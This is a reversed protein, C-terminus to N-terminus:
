GRVKISLRKRPFETPSLTSLLNAVNQRFEVAINAIDELEKKDFSEHPFILKLLGSLLKKVAKEDRITYSGELGFHQEILAEFSIDRMKHLIESLYDLALGYGHALHDESKQIKLLEWGPILGHIRDLMATDRLFDPLYSIIDDSVKYGELDVNGIFVISCTSHARKLHAREFFGDVMYDKLKAIVEDSNAFKIRSIEDFVVVDKQGVDGLIRLKADYFLRAASITGGAFIRTYYSVNRYLYTKGTARPGLELINVNNEILPVLRALLLLRQRETYINPNLGISKVLMEIWESTSFSYRADRFTKIDINYAQFPELMELELPTPTKGWKNAKSIEIIEPRYRLIGIGWVGSFLREYKRILSKDVLADNIQLNPIRLLYLGLKLDVYAEFEDILNIRRKEVAKSLVRDRDKPDPFFENVIWTLKELWRHPDSNYYKSILYESIFRPLRSVVDLRALRKDVAIDGFVNRVKDDLTSTM